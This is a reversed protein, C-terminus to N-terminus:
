KRDKKNKCTNIGIGSKIIEVQGAKHSPCTFASHEVYLRFGLIGSTINAFRFVSSLM